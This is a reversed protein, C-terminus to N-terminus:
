DDGLAARAERSPSVVTVMAVQGYKRAEDSVKLNADAITQLIDSVGVKKLDRFEVVLNTLAVLSTAQDVSNSSRALALLQKSAQEIVPILEGPQLKNKLELIAATRPTLRPQVLITQAMVDAANSLFVDQDPENANLETQVLRVTSRPDISNQAVVERLPHRMLPNDLTDADAFIRFGFLAVSFLIFYQFQSM